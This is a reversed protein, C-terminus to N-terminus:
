IMPVMLSIMLPAWSKIKEKDDTIEMNSFLINENLYEVRKRLFEVNKIGQVFSM